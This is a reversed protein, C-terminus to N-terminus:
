HLRRCRTIDVCALHEQHIAEEITGEEGEPNVDQPKELGVLLVADIRHDVNEGPHGLAGEVLITDATFHLSM